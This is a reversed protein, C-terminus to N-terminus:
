CEAQLCYKIDDFRATGRYGIRLRQELREQQGARQTQSRLVRVSLGAIGQSQGDHGLVNEPSCRGVMQDAATHIFRHLTEGSDTTRRGEGDDVLLSHVCVINM